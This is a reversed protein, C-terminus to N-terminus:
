ARKLLASMVCTRPNKQLVRKWSDRVALMKYM